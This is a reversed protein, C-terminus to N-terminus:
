KGRMAVVNGASQAEGVVQLVHAAWAELARAKEGLYAHRNYIATVGSIQGSIHNLVSEIVHVPFGLRAMGSAATRRLDHLRWPEITVKEPDDGRDAAEQRAIELMVGDLREKAKSYGSIPTTGTTTFVFESGAMRPVSALIAQAAETLPVDHARGNKTRAAPITWLAGGDKLETQRLGAVEDRRQASLMLLRVVSGFPTGIREAAKWILRLENDSLVRDRTISTAPPQIRVCPSADLISRDLCWNFFKRIDALARNAAIPKGADVIADLLHVIDRRTISQVQRTGWEPLVYKRFTREVADITRAKNKARTHRELFREAIVAVSNGAPTDDRATRLAEQKAAAPDAGHAVDQLAQRGRARATALDLVPFPGLTLKRPKGGHRYRVAWSRAGSPQIVFYLGPLLGDAVERRKTPDAKLREIAAVTLAKAM